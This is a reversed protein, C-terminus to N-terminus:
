PPLVEVHSRHLDADPLAVDAALVARGLGASGHARDRERGAEHGFELLVVHGGDPVLVEVQHEGVRVSAPRQVADPQEDVELGRELAGVDPGDPNV